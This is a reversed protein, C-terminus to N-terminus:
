EGQEYATKVEEYFHAIATEIYPILFLFGIGFTLMSLLFWGIFSLTLLFLRMKNGNMMRMSLEIAANNKLEPHDKLIYPTLAYSYQKIIGPVILLLLWLLTYLYMLLYTAGIREWKRTYGSFLRGIGMAGSEKDRTLELLGVTYRWGLPICIIMWVFSFSVGQNQSLFLSVINPLVVGILMILLTAIVADGWKGELTQLALNKYSSLPKM